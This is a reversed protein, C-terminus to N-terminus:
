THRNFEYIEGQKVSQQNQAIPCGDPLQINAKCQCKRAYQYKMWYFYYLCKECNLRIKLFCKSSETQVTGTIILNNKKGDSLM